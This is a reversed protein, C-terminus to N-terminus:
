RSEKAALSVSLKQMGLALGLDSGLCNFVGFSCKALKVPGFASLYIRGQTEHLLVVYLASSIMLMYRVYEDPQFQKGQQFFFEM